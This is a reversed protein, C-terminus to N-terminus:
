IVSEESGAVARWLNFLEGARDRIDFRGVVRRRAAKGLRARLADDQAVQRIAQALSAADDADVLFASEGDVLMEETGGVRTAIIPLGCAAAELLVRGFPEQRAPHILLDVEHLLHEVDERYGLWHFRDEMGAERLRSHLSEEFAVSEAKTSRREGIILFSANPLDDAALIASEVLVDFGKRMGIQGVSAALLGRDPVSLESRLTGRGARPRPRDCDIGNYVVEIREADLGQAVHFERTAASVAILRRNGNLHEAATPSLRLIDRLHATCPVAVRAAFQGTLRGMSLSNAHVVDPRVNHV